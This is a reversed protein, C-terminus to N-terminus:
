QFQKTEEIIGGVTRLQPRNTRLWRPLKQVAQLAEDRNAYSGYMVSMFPKGRVQTRFVYVEDLLVQQSLTELQNKMHEDSNGGMLQITVTSTPKQSLWNKTAVLRRSLIDDPEVPVPSEAAPAPSPMPATVSATPQPAAATAPAAV